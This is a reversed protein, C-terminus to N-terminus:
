FFCIPADSMNYATAQDDNTCISPQKQLDSQCKEYTPHDNKTPRTPVKGLDSPCKKYTPHANKTALGFCTAAASPGRAQGLRM